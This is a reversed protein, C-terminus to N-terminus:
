LQEVVDAIQEFTYSKVDNLFMFTVNADDGYKDTRPADFGPLHQYSSVGAWEEVIGPLVSAAGAYNATQDWSPGVVRRQVIGRERALHCLVGLCCYSSNGQADISELAGTTQEYKGSRLAEVWLKKVEPNM